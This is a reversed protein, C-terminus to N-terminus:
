SAGAEGSAGAGSAASLASAGPGARRPVFGTLARAGRSMGWSVAGGVVNFSSLAVGHSLGAAIPLVQRLVLLILGCTLSLRVAEAITIAAGDSAAQQAAATVLALLLAVVLVTLITVLAYNVLQAIWSEFLRRTPEFLLTPFFLPGLALLISLAIRSLALLFMTYIAVVGVMAYVIVGALGYVWGSLLGAKQLLASAADGGTLLIQDIITVPDSAGIVAAALESPAQFFTDVLTAEYLWLDLGMGLLVALTLIRKVGTLLPEDIRGTLQLYGWGMVYVTALTIVAPELAEAVTQATNGIYTALLGNLWANFQAFFGV